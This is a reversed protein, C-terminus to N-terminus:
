HDNGERSRHRSELAEEILDRNEGCMRRLLFHGDEAREIDRIVSRAGVDKQPPVRVIPFFVLLSLRQRIEIGNPEVNLAITVDLQQAETAAFNVQDVSQVRFVEVAQLFFCRGYSM